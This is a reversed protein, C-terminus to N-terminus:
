SNASYIDHNGPCSWVVSQRLIDEYMNEFMATQYQEDTGDNYANDGLMLIMDTQGGNAAVYDYYADRVNRQNNDATGADGLIWARTLGTYNDAPATTFFYDANGGVFTTDTTGISYYYKAGPTLGIVTVEHDMVLGSDQAINNLSAPSAGFNVVSNTPAETRWKVIVSNQTLTQLYPGRELTIQPTGVNKIELDMSVDSSTALDQHTEVAVLNTGDVLYTIPLLITHITTEETGSINSSAATLYSITGTPPMNTRWVETGNLYVVAGDDRIMSIEIFDTSAFGTATFSKRFYNTIQNVDSITTAEDGDGFGLEAPGSAWSADNFSNSRWTTGQDSGDDKYKWVDGFNVYPPAAPAASATMSLDFTVDSSGTSQQHIEVAIVNTGSQLMATVDQTYYTTEDAGGVASSAPTDFDVTGIPMNDRYLEVGNLYVVAGDDRMLEFSLNGYLGPNSVEFTHRFYYTLNGGTTNNNITTVNGNGFGLDGGGLSWSADNFGVENWNSVPTPNSDWYRWIDNKSIFEPGNNTSTAELRLDFSVDSSTTNVQHIEVAITNLGNVLISPSITTSYIGNEPDANGLALTQYNVAGIPMNDRWVEVGNIYVVAGDDRVLDLDLSAISSVNVVNFTTRFYNTIQDNDNIITAEDGDGFGLQAPGSLWSADNFGDARWATGQNSGDDKYKWFSGFPILEATGTWNTITTLQYSCGNSDTETTIVTGANNLNADNVYITTDSCTYVTNPNYVKFNDIALGDYQYIEDSAFAFRFKVESLGALQDIVHSANLWGGSSGGLDVDGSWGQNSGGPASNIDNRNYWNTTDGFGGITQWTAGNNTTYQFVAGEWSQEIDWWISFSVDLNSEGTFDFCPSVLTSNENANYKGTSLGGTTWAQTGDAAGTITTKAPTGLAWSSSTGSAIWGAAGSEFSEAYPVNFVQDCSTSFSTNVVDSNGGSCIASVNIDYLTNSTLAVLNISNTTSYITSTSAGNDYDIRFSDAAGTHSWSISASNGTINDVELNLVNSCSNANCATLCSANAVNNQMLASPQPGFGLTFDIGVGGILHCYSMITGKAPIINNINDFCGSAETAEDLEDTQGDGDDNFGNTVYYQSGCDDIPTNNGNWACAHTHRSGFNHGMEHAFVEVDWSYNPFGNFNNNINSYATRNGINSTCLVNVYALGGNGGTSGSLLHALDGNLPAGGNLYAKLSNLGETSTADSFPDSPTDWVNVYSLSIDMSDNAYLTAVVNFMAEVYNITAAVSSSNDVFMEYNCEVHIRVCNGSGRAAEMEIGKMLPEVIMNNEATSNCDRYSDVLLDKKFYSIYDDSNDLKRTVLTGNDRSASLVMMEDNFFSIAVLSNQKGEIIGQYHVGNEAYGVNIKGNVQTFYDNSVISTKILKYAEYGKPTPISLQLAAPQEKVIDSITKKDASFVQAEKVTSSFKNGNVLKTIINKKQFQETNQYVKQEIANQAQLQGSIIFCAFISIALYFFRNM